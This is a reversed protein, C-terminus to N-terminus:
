SKLVKAKALECQKRLVNLSSTYVELSYYNLGNVIHPWFWSNVDFTKNEDEMGNNDSLHYAKVWKECETLFSIADVGLSQSSVKLHAVDVLLNVNSPTNEMIYVCESKGTMLLPDGSFQKYNSSSVVNNEILLSVKKSHAYKSLSNVREIFVKMAVTRDYLQRSSITEGLESVGPDLLFGAHFSYVDSGLETSYDIANKVHQISLTAINTNLSALNFVFPKLPPPFYNHVRFSLGYETQLDKLKRLQNTEYVGGSLEISLFGNEALLKVTDSASQSKFGGTSIYIM